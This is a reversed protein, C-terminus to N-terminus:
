LRLMELAPPCWLWEGKGDAGDVQPRTADPVVAHMRRLTLIVPRATHVAFDHRRLLQDVGRGEGVLMGVGDLPYGLVQGGHDERFLTPFRSYSSTDLEATCFSQFDSNVYTHRLPHGYGPSVQGLVHLLQSIRQRSGVKVRTLRVNTLSRTHHEIFISHLLFPIRHFNAPRFSIFLHCVFLEERSNVFVDRGKWPLDLSDKFFHPLCYVFRRRFGCLCHAVPYRGEVEIAFM